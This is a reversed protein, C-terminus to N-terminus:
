GEAETPKAEPEPDATETEEKAAATLKMAGVFLGTFLGGSIITNRFFEWTPPHEPFGTTLAQIWGGPTKPYALTMWSATNTVLYFLIAGGIGGGLLTWWPRKAGLMRGLWILGAYAVYNPCQAALFGRWSFAVEPYFFLSILLDSGALIGLPAIWGAWGPLYLGACFVIAYAASFNPPMLGPWRSLAFVVVLLLPWVNNKKM